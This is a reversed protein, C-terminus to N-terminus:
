GGSVPPFLAVEAGEPIGDPDSAFEHNVAVLVTGMLEKLAPYAEVLRSKLERVTLPGSLSVQVSKQKGVKDRLSAFLLVSIQQM